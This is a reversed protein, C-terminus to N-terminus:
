ELSGVSIRLRASSKEEVKQSATVSIVSSTFRDEGLANQLRDVEPVDIGDIEIVMETDVRSFRLSKITPGALDAKAWADSFRGMFESFDIRTDREDLRGQLYKGVEDRVDRRARYSPIFERVATVTEQRQQAAQEDILMSMIAFYAAVMLLSLCLGSVGWVLGSMRSAADKPAFEGQLLNIANKAIVARQALYQMAGSTLAIAQSAVGGGLPVNGGVLINLDPDSNRSLLEALLVSERQLVGQDSGCRYLVDAGLELVCLGREETPLLGADTYVAALSIGRAAFRRIITELMDKELINVDVVGEKASDSVAFHQEGLEGLVIDEFLYPLSKRHRRLYKPPITASTSTVFSCPLIAVYQLEGADLRHPAEEHGIVFTDLFKDNDDFLWADLAGDTALWDRTIYM